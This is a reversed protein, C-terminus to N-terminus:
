AARRETTTVAIAAAVDPPEWGDPKLVKGDARRRVQGDPGLKRMCADMVTHFATDLDFGWHLANGYVVNLVDASERAVEVVGGAGKQGAASCSRAHHDLAAAWWKAVHEPEPLGHMACILEAVEELILRERFRKEDIALEPVPTDRVVLDFAQHFARVRDAPTAPRERRERLAASAACPDPCAAFACTVFGGDALFLTEGCGEPCRGAVKIM